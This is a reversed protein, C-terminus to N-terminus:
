VEAKRLLELYKSESLLYYTKTDTSFETSTDPSIPQVGHKDAELFAHRLSHNM